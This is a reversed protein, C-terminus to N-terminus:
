SYSILALLHYKRLPIEKIRTQAASLWCDGNEKNLEGELADRSRYSELLFLKRGM